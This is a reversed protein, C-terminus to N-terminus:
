SPSVPQGVAGVQFLPRALCEAQLPLARAYGPDDQDVQVREGAHVVSRTGAGSVQDQGLHTYAVAVTGGRPM